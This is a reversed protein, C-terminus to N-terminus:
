IFFFIPTVLLFLSLCLFDEEVIYYYKFNNQRFWQSYWLQELKGFMTVVWILFIHMKAVSSSGLSETVFYPFITKAGIKNDYLYFVYSGLGQKLFPCCNQSFIKPKNELIWIELDAIGFFWFFIKKILFLDSKTARNAIFHQHM